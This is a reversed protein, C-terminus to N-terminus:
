NPGVLGGDGHLNSNDGVQEMRRNMGVRRNRCHRALHGFDGCAYCNRERDVDITYLNRQAFGARQQLCVMVVEEEGSRRNSCARNKGASSINGVEKAVSITM